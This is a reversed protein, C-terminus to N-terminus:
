AVDDARLGSATLLPGAAITTVLGVLTLMAHTRTTIIQARLVDLSIAITVVGGCQLLAGMALAQRRDFGVARASAYTGSLKLALVTAVLALAPALADLRLDRLNTYLAAVGLFVPLLAGRVIRGLRAELYRASSGSSPVAIGVILPGVLLTGILIRGGAGAAVAIALLLAVAVRPPLRLRPSRAVSTAVAVVGAALAVIVALQAVAARDAGRIAMGSAVLAITTACAGTAIVIGGVDSRLLGRDELIRAAIPVGHAALAAGLALLFALSTAQPAKWAGGSQLWPAAVLAVLAMPVVSALALALIRVRRGRMPAPDITLGVLLMYLMMGLAAVWTLVDVALPPFVAGVLGWAPAGDVVGAVHGGLVTPGVLIAGIMEGAIRPEGIRAALAGGCRVVVVVLALDLVVLLVDLAL